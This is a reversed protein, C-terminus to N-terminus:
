LCVLFGADNSDSCYRYFNRYDDHSVLRSRAGDDTDYDALWYWGYHGTLYMWLANADEESLTDGAHQTTHYNALWAFLSAQEAKKALKAGHNDRLGQMVEKVPGDKREDVDWRMAQLKVDNKQIDTRAWYKRYNTHVLDGSSMGELEKSADYQRIVAEWPLNFVAVPGQLWSVQEFSFHDDALLKEATAIM